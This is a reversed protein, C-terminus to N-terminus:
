QPVPEVEALPRFYLIMQQPRIDWASTNVTATDITFQFKEATKPAFWFKAFRQEGSTSTLTKSITQGTSDGDHTEKIRITYSGTSEYFLIAHSITKYIGMLDFDVLDTLLSIAASTSYGTFAPVTDAADAMSLQYLIDSTVGGSGTGAPDYSPIGLYLRITPVSNSPDCAASIVTSTKHFCVQGTLIDVSYIQTGNASGFMDFLWVISEGQEYCAHWAAHSSAVKFTQRTANTLMSSSNGDFVYTNGDAGVYVQGIPTNTVAKANFSGVKANQVRQFNLPPDDQGTPTALVIGNDFHCAFYSGFDRFGNMAGPLDVVDTFGGPPDNWVKVDLHSSYRIRSNRTEGSDKETTALVVRGDTMLEMGKIELVDTAWIDCGSGNDYIAAGIITPTGHTGTKMGLINEVRVVCANTLGEIYTYYLDGNFIRAFLNLPAGTMSATALRGTRRITYAQNTLTGGTYTQLLTISTNSNVTDISYWTGSLQVLQGAVIGSDTWTTGTGVLNTTATTISVTGTTYTPTLNVVTTPSFQQGYCENTTLTIVVPGEVTASIPDMYNVIIEGVNQGNLKAAYEGNREVTVGIGTTVIGGRRRFIGNDMMGNWSTARFGAHQM